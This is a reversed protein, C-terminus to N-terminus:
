TFILRSPDSLYSVLRNMFRAADAGDVVRHDVSISLFMMPAIALSDNKVVPRKRIANVGLIAVEPVNIIPTALVGGINGANTVTFTGGRLDELASKGERARQALEHIEYAIEWINKQDVQHVVPVMLGQPTDTAIGINLEQKLVIEQREDDLSANFYPFERLTPVLAKLIFPMYTLKLHYAEAEHKSKERLDVLASMDVEEVFTFHPATKKAHSMAAAIKKRIGRLAVRQEGQLATRFPLPKASSSAPLMPTPQAVQPLVSPSRAVSASQNEFFTQVDLKTVRGSPGTGKVQGLAIDLDRALKRTAPTALIRDSVIETAGHHSTSRSPPPSVQNQASVREHAVDSERKATEEPKPSPTSAVSKSDDIRVLVSGVPVTQGEQALIAAVKGTVPSPIEVTAKDTMVEVMPADAALSDGEKVLWRVIEGEHIGEGIDPLKFDM